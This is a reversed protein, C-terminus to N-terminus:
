DHFLPSPWIYPLNSPVTPWFKLYHEPMKRILNSRHAKVFEENLWHPHVCGDESSYYLPEHPNSLYPSLGLQNNRIEEFGNLVYDSFGRRRWEKCIIMGYTLLSENYGRWMKCAPHNRWAPTLGLNAQLIQMAEVRQKGLRKDDLRSASLTFSLEPLFTQM